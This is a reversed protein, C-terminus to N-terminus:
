IAKFAAIFQSFQKDEICGRTVQIKKLKAVSYTYHGSYCNKSSSKHKNMVLYAISKKAKLIKWAPLYFQNLIIKKNKRELTLNKTFKIKTTFHLTVKFDGTFAHTLM